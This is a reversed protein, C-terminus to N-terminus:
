AYVRVSPHVFLDDIQDRKMVEVMANQRFEDLWVDNTALLADIFQKPIERQELTNVVARRTANIDVKGQWWYVADLPAYGMARHGAETLLLEFRLTRHQPGPERYVVNQVELLRHSGWTRTAALMQHDLPDYGVVGGLPSVPTNQYPFRAPLDRSRPEMDKCEYIRPGNLLDAFSKAEFTGFRASQMAM